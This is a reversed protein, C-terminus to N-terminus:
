RRGSRVRSGGVARTLGILMGGVEDLGGKIKAWTESDLMGLDRALLLQCELERLSGRAIVLFRRFDPDGGRGSGEAVNSPISVAARRLQSVLGFREADPFSATARYVALSLDYSKQWVRLQHFDGM